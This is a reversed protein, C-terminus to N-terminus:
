MYGRGTRNGGIWREKPAKAHDHKKPNSPLDVSGGFSAGFPNADPVFFDSVWFIILITRDYIYLFFFFLWFLFVLYFFSFLPFSLFLFSFALFPFLDRGAESVTIAVL